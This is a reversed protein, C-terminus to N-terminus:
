LRRYGIVRIANSHIETEFGIQRCAAEVDSASIADGSERPIMECWEIHQYGGMRFHYAWDGDWGESPYRYGNTALTRWYPARLGLASMFEQLEMWKTNNALGVLESAASRSKKPM